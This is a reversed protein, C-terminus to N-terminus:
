KYKVFFYSGPNGDLKPIWSIRVTDFINNNVVHEYKFEPKDLETGEPLPPKTQQTIFVRRLFFHDTM